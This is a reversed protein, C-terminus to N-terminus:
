EESAANQQQAEERLAEEDLYEITTEEESAEEIQEEIVDEGSIQTKIKESLSKLQENVDAGDWIQAFAVELEVWFNSTEIMKPMPISNAYEAVFVDLADNENEIKSAAAVKGSRGYLIDAYDVTLFYAFDNAIEQYSSYGNVVVCQTMSLSRTPMTESIDPTQTFGYDCTFLGDSKAQELKAVADSTAVTFLLKGAVFDDIIGDYSIEDTDVSFFQNLEQYVKMNAIAQENYIHIDSTDWGAEGGLTIADGVFFYNYFIDTVDWKFVAEVQEPADYSDAFERIDDITSPLIEEVRQDIVALEEESLESLDKTEVAEEIDPM